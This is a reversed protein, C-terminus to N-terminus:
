LNITQYSPTQQEIESLPSFAIDTLSSLLSEAEEPHPLIGELRTSTIAVLLALDTPYTCHRLAYVFDTMTQIYRNVTEANIQRTLLFDAIEVASGYICIASDWRKQAALYRASSLYSFWMTKAKEPNYSLVEQHKKCLFSTKKMSYQHRRQM